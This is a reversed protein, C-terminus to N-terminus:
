SDESIVYHQSESVARVKEPDPSTSEHTVVHGVYRVKKRFLHCKEPKVKLNLTSLWSLVTELRFLTEEFMSGFVFIDDLYVLLFQFNLDDFAKDMVRMFTGPANCLRFPM